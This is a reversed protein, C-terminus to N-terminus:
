QPPGNGKGPSEPPGNGNGAGPSQPPGNGNGPSEPPGNGNGGGPSEPPGTGSGPSEPPGTGNGPSEPPGNGNGGGPSEPSTTALGPPALTPAVTVAPGATADSCFSAIRDFDSTGPSEAAVGALERLLSPAATGSRFADCLRRARREPLSVDTAPTSTTSGDDNTSAVGDPVRRDHASPVGLDGFLDHALEQAPGPLVGAAAGAVSVGVIVTVAAAVLMGTRVRRRANPRRGAAPGGHQESFCARARAEGEIEEARAPVRAAALVRDVGRYEPPVDAADLTGDLLREALDDPGSPPQERDQTV